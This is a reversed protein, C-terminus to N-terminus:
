PLRHNKLYNWSQQADWPSHTGTRATCLVTEVGDACNRASQCNGSSGTANQCNNLSTWRQFSGEAGLFTIPELPYGTPPTSPGGRYPVILDLRGRHAFVSVPRSPSCPVEAIMDFAAPAVAAFLDAAQCALLYAMGGGNSYGTAYVRQEDVCADASLQTVLQRAFGVDNVSRSETCCPGLNWANDIGEPYAVLFNERDAVARTGSNNLQYDASTHLAHFDLLLPVKSEGDYGAPVHLIYSRRQGDVTLSRTHQGPQLPAASCSAPTGPDGPDGPDPPPNLASSLSPLLLLTLLLLRSTM